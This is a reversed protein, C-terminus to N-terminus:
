PSGQTRRTERLDMCGLWEMTRWIHRCRALLRDHGARRRHRDLARQQKVTPRLYPRTSM